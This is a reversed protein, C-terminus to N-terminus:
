NFGRELLALCFAAGDKLVQSSTWLEKRELEPTDPSNWWSVLAQWSARVDDVVGAAAADIDVTFAKDQARLVVQLHTHVSPSGHMPGLKLFIEDATFGLRRFAEHVALAERLAPDGM